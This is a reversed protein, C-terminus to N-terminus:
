TGTGIRCGLHMVSIGGKDSEAAAFLHEITSSIDSRLDLLKM